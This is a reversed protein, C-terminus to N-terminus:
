KEAETIDITAHSKLKRLEVRYSFIARSFVAILLLNLISIIATPGFSDPSRVVDVVELGDFILVFWFAIPICVFYFSPAKKIALTWYLWMLNLALSPITWYTLSSWILLFGACGSISLLAMFLRLFRQNKQTVGFFAAPYQERNLFCAM